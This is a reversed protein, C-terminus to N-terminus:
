EEQKQDNESQQNKKSLTTMLVDRTALLEAYRQQAEAEQKLLKDVEEQAKSIRLPIAIDENAKLAIFSQLQIESNEVETWLKDIDARLKQSRISYGGLLKSLKSELKSAKSAEQAMIRRYDNFEENMLKIKESKSMSSLRTLKHEEPSIVYESQLQHRIQDLEEGKDDHDNNNHSVGFSECEKQIEDRAAKLEEESFEERVVSQDTIDRKLLKLMEQGILWSVGRAIEDELVGEMQSDMIREEDISPPIPLGRKVVESRLRLLKETRERQEKLLRAEVDAADDEVSGNKLVSKQDDQNPVDPIIVEFDNKPKPLQSFMEALQHKVSGSRGQIVSRPTEEFGNMQENIGMADRLPTRGPTIGFRPTAKTGNISNSSPGSPAMGGSRPTMQLLPNPTASVQNGRPTSSFELGELESTDGGLLPTQSENLARLRRAEARLYDERGGAATMVENRPTRMPTVDVGKWEGLLGGSVGGEGVSERVNIGVYGIKVISELEADNVQPAPLSLPKRPSPQAAAAAAKLASPPIYEGKEKALKIKKADKKREESEIEARRKGEMKSLLVNTLDPKEREEREREEDISWFGPAPKKYFPIEANYDMGSKKKRPRMEIGAAKLERKKQLAALRRAEELAKERAKRKAKKGQTNALRARAESLM